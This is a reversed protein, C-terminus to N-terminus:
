VTDSTKYVQQWSHGRCDYLCCFKRGHCYSLISRTAPVQSYALSSEPEMFIRPIEQNAAFVPWSRLFSEAGRLLYTLCDRAYSWNNSVGWRFFIVLVRSTCKNIGWKIINGIIPIVCRQIVPHIVSCPVYVFCHQGSILCAPVQKSSTRVVV